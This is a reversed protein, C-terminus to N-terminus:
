HEVEELANDARREGESLPEVVLGGPLDEGIARLLQFEQTISYGNSRAVLDRLPGEPLLNSFWRPLRGPTGFRRFPDDEFRQGLVPRARDTAWREDPLFTTKEAVMRLEGVVTDGLRLRLVTTMRHNARLDAPPRQRGM